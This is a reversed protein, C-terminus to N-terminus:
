VGFSRRFDDFPMRGSILEVLSDKEAETLPMGESEMAAVTSDYADRQRATLLDYRTTAAVIVLTQEALLKHEFNALADILHFVFGGGEITTDIADMLSRFAIDREGLDALLRVLHGLGLGIRDLQSVVITDGATATDLLLQLQPRPESTSSANDSFIRDCGAAELAHVQFAGDDVSSRRAYGYIWSM